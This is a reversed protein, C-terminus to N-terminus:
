NYEFLYTAWRCLNLDQVRFVIGSLYFHEIKHIEFNNNEEETSLKKISMRAANQIQSFLFDNKQASLFM